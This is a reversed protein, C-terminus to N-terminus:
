LNEGDRMGTKLYKDDLAMRAVPAVSRVLMDGDGGDKKTLKELVLMLRNWWGGRKMRCCARQNLLAQLLEAEREYKRLRALIPLSKSLIRTYVWASLSIHLPHIYNCEDHVTTMGPQYQKLFRPETSSDDDMVGYMCEDMLQDWKPRIRDYVQEAEEDSKAAILDDLEREVALADVDASDRCHNTPVRDVDITLCM